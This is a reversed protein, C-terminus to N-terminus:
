DKSFPDFLSNQMCYSIYCACQVLYDYNLLKEDESSFATTDGLLTCILSNDDLFNLIRCLHFPLNNTIWTWWKEKVHETRSCFLIAHQMPNTYNRKCASCVGAMTGPNGLRNNNITLSGCLQRIVYIIRNKDIPSYKWAEYWKSIHLSPHAALYFELGSKGSIKNIWQLHEKKDITSRVISKWRQKSPFCENKLFDTIYGSLDFEELVKIVDPVSKPLTSASSSHSSFSRPRSSPPTTPLSSLSGPYM